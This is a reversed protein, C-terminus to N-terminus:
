RRITHQQASQELAQMFRERIATTFPSGADEMREPHWQVLLVFQKRTPDEWEMAEGVGDASRASVRLGMGIRDAAQHHVTNIMGNNTKVISHLTAGPEVVIEHLREHIGMRRHSPFGASEIDPILSGGMAVNFIQLGRCVGLIPLERRLADDIVEFEFEDRLENVEEVVPIADERNYFKPHVDGGGTLILGHCREIETRNKLLYSLKITHIQEGSRGLWELYKDFAPHPRM